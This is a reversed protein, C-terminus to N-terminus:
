VGRELIRRLEAIPIMVRDGLRVTKVRGARAWKYFTDAAVGAREASESISFLKLDDVAIPKAKVRVKGGYFV